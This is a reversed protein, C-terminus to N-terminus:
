RQRARWERRLGHAGNRSHGHLQRQRCAGSRQGPDRDPDGDRHRDRGQRREGPLRFSDDGNFDLKPTYSFSGNANLVLSGNAVNTALSVTLPDGNPDTDAGGGNNLLVNGNLVTDEIFVFQDDAAIPPSNTSTSGGLYKTQLFAEVQGRETATLARNYILVAGIALQSEGLGKIEAGLVLKKLDTNFTHTDSDILTGNKYHSTVNNSLVVSQM